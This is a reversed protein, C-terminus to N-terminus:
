ELEIVARCGYGVAITITLFGDASRTLGALAPQARAFAIEEAIALLSAYPYNVEVFKAFDYFYTKGILRRGPAQPVKAM